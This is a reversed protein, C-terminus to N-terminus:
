TRSRCPQIIRSTAALRIPGIGRGHALRLAAFAEPRPGEAFAKALAMMAVTGSGDDDAGNWIRDDEAGPKVFAPRRCAWAARVAGTTPSRARPTASTITTRVSPSTPTRAAASRQGRRDGVVNHALQTRVIEYDADLNFTLKVGDLRFSPLPEQADAKRKLEDYRAPAASFLFEFFADSGAVDPALVRDLREVTTFDSAPLRIGADGDPPGM